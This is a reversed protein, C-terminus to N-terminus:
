YCCERSIYIFTIWKESLHEQVHVFIVLLFIPLWNQLNFRTAGLLLICTPPIYQPRAYATPAYIM